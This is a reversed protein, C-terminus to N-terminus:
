PDTPGDQGKMSCSTSRKAMWGRVRHMMAATKVRSPAHWLVFDGPFGDELVMGSAEIVGQFAHQTFDGQRVGVTGKSQSIYM